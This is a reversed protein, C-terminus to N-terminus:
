RMGKGKEWGVIERERQEEASYYVEKKLTFSVYKSHM